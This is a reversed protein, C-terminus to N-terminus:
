HMGMIVNNVNQMMVLKAFFAILLPAYQAHVVPMFKAQPANVYDMIQWYAHLMLVHNKMMAPSRIPEANIVSHMQILKSAAKAIIM